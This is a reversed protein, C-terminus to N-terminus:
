GRELAPNLKRYLIRTTYAVVCAAIILLGLTKHIQTM